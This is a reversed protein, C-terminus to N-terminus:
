RRPSRKLLTSEDNSPIRNRPNNHPHLGGSSPACRELRHLKHLFIHRRRDHLFTYRTILYQVSFSIGITAIDVYSSSMIFLDVGIGHEVCKEGLNKYFIDAAQLYVIERETGVASSDTDRFRLHGPGWTPLSSLMISIKGGFKEQSTLKKDMTPM